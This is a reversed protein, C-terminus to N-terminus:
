FLSYSGVEGQICFKISRLFKKFLNDCKEYNKAYGNHPSHTYNDDSKM